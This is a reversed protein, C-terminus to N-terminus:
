RSRRFEWGRDRDTGIAAEPKGAVVRRRPERGALRGPPDLWVKRRQAEVGHGHPGVAGEVEEGPGAGLDDKETAPWRIGRPLPSVWRGNRIGGAPAPRGDPRVPSEAEAGVLRKAGGDEASGFTPAPRGQPREIVLLGHREGEIVVDEQDRGVEPLDVRPAAGPRRSQLHLVSDPGAVEDARVVLEEEVAIADPAARSIRPEVDRFSQGRSARRRAADAGDAAEREAAVLYEGHVRLTKEAPALAPGELLDGVQWGGIGAPAEDARERHPVVLEM